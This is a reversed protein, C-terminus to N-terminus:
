KQEREKERSEPNATRNENKRHALFNAFMENIRTHKSPSHKALLRVAATSSSVCVTGSNWSVPPPPWVFKIQASELLLLLKNASRVCVSEFSVVSELWLIPLFWQLACDVAREFSSDNSVSFLISRFNNKMRLLISECSACNDRTWFGVLLVNSISKTFLVWVLLITHIRIKTSCKSWHLFIFFNREKIKLGM